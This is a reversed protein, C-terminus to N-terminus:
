TADRHKKEKRLHLDRLVDRHAAERQPGGVDAAETVTVRGVGDKAIEDDAPELEAGKARYKPEVAVPAPLRRLVDVYAPRGPVVFHPREAILRITCDRFDYRHAFRQPRINFILDRERARM